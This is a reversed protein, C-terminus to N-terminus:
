EDTVADNPNKKQFGQSPKGKRKKNSLISVQRWELRYKAAVIREEGKDTLETETWYPEVGARRMKGMISAQATYVEWEKDLDNGLITTEREYATYAM